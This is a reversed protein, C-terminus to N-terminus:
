LTTPEPRPTISQLAECLVDAVRQVGTRIGALTEARENYNTNFNMEFVVPEHPHPFMEAQTPFEDFLVIAEVSGILAGAARFAAEVKECFTELADPNGRFGPISLPDRLLMFSISALLASSRSDCPCLKFEACPATIKIIYDRQVRGGIVEFRLISKIDSDSKSHLGLLNQLVWLGDPADATVAKFGSRLVASVERGSDYAAVGNGSGGLNPKMIVPGPFRSAEVSTQALSSTLITFPTNLGAAALYMMQGAKSTELDLARSGNIVVARHFELWRLIEKTYATSTTHGRSGSSPSQRCYFVGPPPPTLPVLAGATTNWVETPVGRDDLEKLFCQMRDHDEGIIYVRPVEPVASSSNSYAEM